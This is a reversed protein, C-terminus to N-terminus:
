TARGVDTVVAVSVSFANGRVPDLPPFEAQAPWLPLGTGSHGAVRTLSSQWRQATPNLSHRPGPAISM